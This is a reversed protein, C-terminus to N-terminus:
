EWTDYSVNGLADTRQDCIKADAPADSWEFALDQTLVTEVGLIWDEEGTNFDRRLYYFRLRDGVVLPDAGKQIMMGEKQRAGLIKALNPKIVVMIDCDIGNLRAPAAYLSKESTGGVRYMAVHEIIKPWKGIPYDESGVGILMYNGVPDRRWLTPDTKSEDSAAKVGSSRYFQSGNSLMNYFGNLYNTYNGDMWLGDYIPMTIGGIDRGGYIYYASLGCLDVDCNHRNYVVAQQLEALVSAAESPYYDSLKRAMDGIDVMDCQNDRPSGEGFTKTNARRQALTHFEGLMNADAKSMLKGMASMVYPARTLDTVSMTLIEDSNAGYYNMFADTIYIGADKGSCSPNQGMSGLFSYDWGDGPELDEASIMYNAYESAVVSMEISSMLCSDFALFELKHRAAGSDAFAYNMELLTLNNNDFKEDQGYGAISGGGHDWMILGYKDAPFSSYCLDIFGRLTGPDGMNLLGVRGLEYISNGRVEWIACENQPIVNNQWRNAGGTFIVLNIQDSVGTSLIEHIDLTAAGNESELDSGNMFLMLTYAKKNRPSLNSIVAKYDWNTYRLSSFDLRSMDRVFPQATSAQAPAPATFNTNTNRTFNIKASGLWIIAPTIAMAVLATLLVHRRKM